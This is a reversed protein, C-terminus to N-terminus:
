QTLIPYDRPVATAAPPTGGMNREEKEGTENGEERKSGLSPLLAAAALPSRSDPIVVLCFVVRKFSSSASTQRQLVRGFATAAIIAVWMDRWLYFAGLPPLLAIIM